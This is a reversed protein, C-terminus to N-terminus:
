IYSTLFRVDYRCGLIKGNKFSGFWLLVLRLDHARADKIVLDLEDFDFKGEVPEIQEWTVNGLVTNINMDVLKPWIPQMYEASSMSSNQLEAGLILYPKGDVHLQKSNVTKEFHPFNDSTSVM